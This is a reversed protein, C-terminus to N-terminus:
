GVVDGHQTQEQRLPWRHGLGLRHIVAGVDGVADQHHRVGQHEGVERRLRRMALHTEVGM